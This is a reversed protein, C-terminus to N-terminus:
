LRIGSVAQWVLSKREKVPLTEEDNFSEWMETWLQQGNRQQPVLVSTALSQCVSSEFRLDRVKHWLISSAESRSRRKLREVLKLLNWRTGGHRILFLNTNLIHKSWQCELQGESVLCETVVWPECSVISVRFYRLLELLYVDTDGNWGVSYAIIYFAVSPLCHRPIRNLRQM